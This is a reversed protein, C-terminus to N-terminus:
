GSHCLGKGRVRPPSGLPLSISVNKGAKEGCVRPHDRSLTRLGRPWKKKGACAPTIGGGGCAFSDASGKGACAPTIGIASILRCTSSVKGRVRPPSGRIPRLIIEAPIKEGCVRPHDRCMRWEPKRPLSKGACAPTIRITSAM